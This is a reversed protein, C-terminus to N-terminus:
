SGTTDRALEDGLRPVDAPGVAVIQAAEWWQPALPVAPVPVHYAVEPSAVLPQDTLEGGPEDAGRVQVGSGAPALDLNGANVSVYLTNSPSM